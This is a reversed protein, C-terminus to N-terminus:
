KKKDKQKVLPRLLHELGNTKVELMEAMMNGLEGKPFGQQKFWLLYNESVNLLLQGSHKGFPMTANALKILHGKDFLADEAM